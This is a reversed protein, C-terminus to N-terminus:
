FLFFFFAFCMMSRTYGSSLPSLERKILVEGSEWRMLFFWPVSTRSKGIRLLNDPLECWIIVTVGGPWIFRERWTRARQIAQRNRRHSSLYSKECPRPATGPPITKLMPSWIFVWLGLERASPVLILQWVRGLVAFHLCLYMHHTTRWTRKLTYSLM